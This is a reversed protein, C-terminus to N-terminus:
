SRNQAADLSEIWPWMWIERSRQGLLTASGFARRAAHIAEERPMGDAVLAEIKDELHQQMEKSLEGTM